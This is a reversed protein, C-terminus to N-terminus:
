GGDMGPRPWLQRRGTSGAGLDNAVIAAHAIPQGVFDAILASPDVDEPGTKEPFRSLLTWIDHDNQAVLTGRNSQYHWAPGWRQLLQRDDSEFHVIYRESIRANGSQGIGLLRRVRSGGGDCGVLYDARVREENGNASQLTVTVGRGDEEFRELAWGFRVEVCDAEDIAQKLVPEIIVQSVRMPPQSGQSGDNRARIRDRVGAVGPYVFRHLEHGTLTTIWSVDFPQIEPVSVARLRDALGAKAFLEMSRGNTIDMKPHKTTTSNREILTM